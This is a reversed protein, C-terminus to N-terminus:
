GNKLERALWAKAMNWDRMVTIKSVNLVEATEKVSLGGFYRLEVVEAKRADLASLRKLAEDLAVLESAKVASVV